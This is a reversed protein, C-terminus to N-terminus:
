IRVAKELGLAIKIICSQKIHLLQTHGVRLREGIIAESMRNYYFMDFFDLEQNNLNELIKKLSQYIKDIMIEMDVKKEVFDGVKDTPTFNLKEYRIEYNSTIKPPILNIYSYKWEEINRMLEDVSKKSEEFNFELLFINKLLPNRYNSVDIKSKRMIIVDKAYFLSYCSQLNSNGLNLIILPYFIILYIIDQM